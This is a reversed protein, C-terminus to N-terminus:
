YKIFTSRVCDRVLTTRLRRQKSEKICNKVGHHGGDMFNSQQQEMVTINRSNHITIYNDPILYIQYAVGRPTTVWKTLVVARLVELVAKKKCKRLGLIKKESHHM